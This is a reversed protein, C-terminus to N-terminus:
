FNLSYGVNLGLLRLGNTYFGDHTLRDNKIDYLKFRDTAEGGRRFKYNVGVFINPTIYYSYNLNYCWISGGHKFNRDSDVIYAYYEFDTFIERTSSEVRKLPMSNEIGIEIRSKIKPMYYALELGLAGYYITQDVKLVLVTIVRSQLPNFSYDHKIKTKKIGFKLGIDLRNNILFKRIIIEPEYALYDHPDVIGFIPKYSLTTDTDLGNTQVQYAYVTNYENTSYQYNHKVFSYYGNFKLEVKSIVQSSLLTPLFLYFLIRVKM